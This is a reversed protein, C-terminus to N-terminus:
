EESHSKKMMISPEESLAEVRVVLRRMVDENLSMIREMEQMASSPADINLLVYHAKRSKNMRYALNRLGWYERSVVIGGGQELVESFSTTLNEVQAATIEPRALYVCEYLAM